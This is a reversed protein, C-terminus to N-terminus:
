VDIADSDEETLQKLLESSTLVITKNNNVFTNGTGLDSKNSSIKTHLDVLKEALNACTNLANSAVEIDRPSSGDAANALSMEVLQQSREITFQLTRRAYDIDQIEDQSSIGESPMRPTIPADELIDSQVIQTSEYVKNINNPSNTGFLKNLHQNNM